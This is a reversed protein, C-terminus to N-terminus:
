KLIWVSASKGKVKFRGCGEEDITVTEEFNELADKFEKKVMELM